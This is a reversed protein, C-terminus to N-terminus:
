SEPCPALAEVVQDLETLAADCRSQNARIEAALAAFRLRILERLLAAVVRSDMEQLTSWLTIGPLFDEVRVLSQLQSPDSVTGTVPDFVDLIEQLQTSQETFRSSLVDLEGLAKALPTM